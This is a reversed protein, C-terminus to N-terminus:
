GRSQYNKSSILGVIFSAYEKKLDVFEMGTRYRGDEDRVNRVVARTVVKQRGLFLGVKVQQSEALRTDLVVALGGQALDVLLGKGDFNNSVVKVPIGKVDLLPHLDRTEIRVWARKGLPNEPEFQWDVELGELSPIDDWNVKEKAM